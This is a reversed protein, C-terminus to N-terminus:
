RPADSEPTQSETDNDSCNELRSNARQERVGVSRRDSPTGVFDNGGAARKRFLAGIGKPAFLILLIILLAYLDTELTQLASRVTDPLDPVLIALYQIATLVISAIVPGVLSNRGGIIAMALFLIATSAGFLSPSLYGVIGAYLAGGIGACVAAFVHARVKIPEIDVGCARAGPDNSGLARM